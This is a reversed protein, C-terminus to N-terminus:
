FQVSFRISSPPVTEAAINARHAACISKAISLGIGYGGTQRSRSTDARYFRDFLRNLNGSPPEPCTNEVWFCPSQNHATLHVSVTGEPGAYKVANELLISVLQRLSDRDGTVSIGPEISISFIVHNTQALTEFPAATETVLASLDLMELQLNPQEADLRTLMLMSQLLQDMRSIQNRISDTWQSNGNTLELVDNNASIIALPTKLEHGADELFQRQKKMADEIPRIARRSFLAALLTAAVFAAAGISCSLLLFTRNSTLETSCDLFIVMQKQQDPLICYRYNGDYGRMRGKAAARQGFAIAQESSIAAIHGTDVRTPQNADDLWVVFYRTKFGTDANMGTPKSPKDKKEPPGKKYDPFRGNNESLYALMQDARVTTSHLNLLNISGLIVVIVLALSVAAILIFKRQLKQIM